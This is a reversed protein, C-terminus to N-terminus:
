RKIRVWTGITVGFIVNPNDQSTASMYISGVPYMLKLIAVKFNDGFANTPSTKTSEIKGDVTKM